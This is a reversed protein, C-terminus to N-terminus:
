KELEKGQEKCCEEIYRFASDQTDDLSKRAKAVSEFGSYFVSALGIQVGLGAVLEHIGHEDRYKTIMNVVERSLDKIKELQEDTLDKENM